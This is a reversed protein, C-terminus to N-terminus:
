SKTGLDTGFQIDVVGTEVTEGAVFQAVRRAADVGFLNM